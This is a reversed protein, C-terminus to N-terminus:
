LDDSDSQLEVFEVDEIGEMSESRKRIKEEVREFEEGILPTPKFDNHTSVSSVSCPIVKAESEEMLKGDKFSFKQNFIFTDKDSPVTNGGFSFNALSYLIYKGKYKEIGQIVHPHHGIVLDVGNDIALYALEKQFANPLEAKEEGWHFSAIILDPEEEKVKELMSIFQDKGIYNLANTGVLGVKIGNVNRIAYEDTGFYSIDRNEFIEKTQELGDTGYDETHNNAINAAEVGSGTLINVYRPDGKFAYQKIQRQGKDTLVGEFNVITLDDEEFIEQVNEFFYYYNEGNREFVEDFSGAYPITIDNGFTCDGVATVSLTIISEDKETVEVANEKSSLAESVKLYKAYMELGLISVVLVFVLSWVIVMLRKM